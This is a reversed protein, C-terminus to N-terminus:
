YGLQLIKSSTEAYSRRDAEGTIDVPWFACQAREIHNHVGASLGLGEPQHDSFGHCAPSWHNDAGSTM